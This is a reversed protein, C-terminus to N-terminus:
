ILINNLINKELRWELAQKTDKLSELQNSASEDTMLIQLNTEDLDQYVFYKWDNKELAEVDKDYKTRANNYTEGSKELYMIKLSPQIRQSIIQRQWSDEDYKKALEYSDYMSKCDAYYDPDSEELEPTLQEKYYNMSEDDYIVTGEPVKIILDEGDKGTCRRKGGEEGSEAIYKSNHRFDGLTNLGKDVMFIIDGGHGGNGGDPGGAPVYLERRFSVHGDGGKGSKIFIRVRDAFM